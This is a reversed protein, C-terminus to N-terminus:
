DGKSYCKDDHEDLWKQDNIADVDPEHDDKEEPPNIWDEDRREM